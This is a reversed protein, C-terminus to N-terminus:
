SRLRPGGEKLFREAFADCWRRLRRALTADTRVAVPLYVECTEAHIAAWRSRDTLHLHRAHDLREALAILRAGESATVLHELLREGDRAPIPVEDLLALSAPVLAPDDPAPAALEPQLTEALAAASLVAPDVIGVDELLILVTRGPHLYAPDHDDDLRAVRVALAADLAVEISRVGREGIGAQIATSVVRNSM